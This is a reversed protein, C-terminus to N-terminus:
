SKRTLAAQKRARIGNMSGLINKLDLINKRPNFGFFAM